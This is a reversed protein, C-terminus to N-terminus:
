DHDISQVPTSPVSDIQREAELWDDLECGGAFGRRQALSYALIEIRERRQNISVPTDSTDAILGDPNQEEFRPREVESFGSRDNPM